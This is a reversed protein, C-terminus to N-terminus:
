SDMMPNLQSHIRAARWYLILTGSSGTIRVSDPRNLGYLSVRITKAKSLDLLDDADSTESINIVPTQLLLFTSAILPLAVGRM